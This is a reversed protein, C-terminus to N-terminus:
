ADNATAKRGSRKVHLEASSRTIRLCVVGAIFFMMLFLAPLVPNSHQFEDLHALRRSQHVEESVSVSVQDQVQWIDTDTAPTMRVARVPVENPDDHALDAGPTPVIRPNYM